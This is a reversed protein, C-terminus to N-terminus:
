RSRTASRWARLDVVEGDLDAADLERLAWLFMPAVEDPDRGRGGSVDTAVLGPDVVGVTAATDVAFGRVLAEAAAKSAAYAGMGPKAERAVSGSPVLV